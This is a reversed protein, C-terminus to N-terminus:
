AYKVTFLMCYFPLDTHFRCDHFAPRKHVTFGNTYRFLPLQRDRLLKKFREAKCRFGFTNQAAILKYQARDLFLVAALKGFLDEGIQDCLPEASILEKCFELFRLFFHTGGHFRQEGLSFLRRM